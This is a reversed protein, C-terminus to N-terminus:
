PKWGQNVLKVFSPVLYRDVYNVWGRWQDTVLKNLEGFKDLLPTVFRSVIIQGVQILPRLAEGLREMGTQIQAMAIAAQGGLTKRFAAAAGAHQREIERAIIRANAAYNGMLANIKIYQQQQASLEVGVNKLGRAQGQIAKGVAQYVEPFSEASRGMQRQYTLLDAMSQQMGEIQRTSLKFQALYVDGKLLLGSYIGTQGQLRRAQRELLEVRQKSQELGIGRLKNQNAILNNLAARVGAEEKALEVSHRAVEAIGGIGALGLLGTVMRRGMHTMSENVRAVSRNLQMLQLNAQRVAQPLSAQLKGGIAITTQLPNNFAM